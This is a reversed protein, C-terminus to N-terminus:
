GLVEQWLPKARGPLATTVTGWEPVPSGHSVLMSPLSPQEQCLGLPSWGAALDRSLFCGRSPAGHLKPPAAPLNIPLLPLSAGAGPSM